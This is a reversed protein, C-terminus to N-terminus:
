IPATKNKQTGHQAIANEFLDTVQTISYTKPVSKTYKEPQRIADAISSGLASDYTIGPFTDGLVERAGVTDSAIIPIGLAMAELLVYGMSEFKSCLVLCKARKMIPWPNSIDGLCHVQEALQAAKAKSNIQAITDSGEHEGGVFVLQLKQNLEPTQLYTDLLLTQRKEPSMRGVHIIFEDPLSVSPQHQAMQRVKDLDFPNPIYLQEIRSHAQLRAMLTKSISINTRRAYKRWLKVKEVVRKLPNNTQYLKRTCDGHLISIAQNVPFYGSGINDVLIVQAKPDRSYFFILKKNVKKIQSWQQWYEIDAQSAPGTNWIEIQHQRRALEQTLLATAVEAGGTSLQRLVFIFKM